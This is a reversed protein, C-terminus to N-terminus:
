RIGYIYGFYSEGNWSITTTFGSANLINEIESHNLISHNNHFEVAIKDIKKLGTVGLSKIIEGEAGECDLKLFNIKDVKLKDMISELKVAQVRIGGGIDVTTSNNNSVKHGGPISGEIMFRDENDIGLAYNLYEINKIKNNLINNRLKKFNEPHPEFSFIKTGKVLSAYLSFVGVNAGIDFVVDGEEIRISNKTYVKNIFIEKIISLTNKDAKYFNIVTRHNLVNTKKGGIARKLIGDWNYYNNKLLIIEQLVRKIKFLKKKM